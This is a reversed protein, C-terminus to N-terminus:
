VGGPIERAAIPYNTHIAENGGKKGRRGSWCCSTGAKGSVIYNGSLGTYTKIRHLNDYTPAITGSLGTGSLSAVDEGATYQYTRNFVSGGSGCSISQLRKSV